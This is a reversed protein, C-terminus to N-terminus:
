AERDSAASAQAHAARLRPWVWLFVAVAPLISFMTILFFTAYGTAAVIGGAFFGLIKGPLNV